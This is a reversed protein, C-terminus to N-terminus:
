VIEDCLVCASIVMITVPLNFINTIKLTITCIGVLSTAIDSPKCDQLKM